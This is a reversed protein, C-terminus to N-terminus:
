DTEAKVLDDGEQPKKPNGYQDTAKTCKGSEEWEYDLLKTQWKVQGVIINPVTEMKIDTIIAQRGDKTKVPKDDNLWQDDIPETNAENIIDSLKRM